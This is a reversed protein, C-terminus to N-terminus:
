SSAHFNLKLVYIQLALLHMACFLIRNCRWLYESYRIENWAKSDGTRYQIMHPKGPMIRLGRHHSGNRISSNFESFLSFFAPNNELCRARGSKDTTVYKRLDIQEFEDFNRGQLINNICAPLTLGSALQEFSNGYFYHVKDLDRTSPVLDGSPEVGHAAYVWAQNLQEYGKLYDKLISLQRDFFDKYEIGRMWELMRSFEESNLSIAKNAEECCTKVSDQNSNGVLGSVLLVIAHAPSKVSHGTNEEISHLHPGALDSRGRRHLDIIKLTASLVERMGRRIGLEDIIDFVQFGHQDPPSQRAPVPLDPRPSAGMMWPFIRDQHLYEEPILFNSDLNIISGEEECLDSNEITVGEISPGTLRGDDIELLVERNNFDIKLNIVSQQGCGVCDFTHSQM